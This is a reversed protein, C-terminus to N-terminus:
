RQLVGDCRKSFKRLPAWPSRLAGGERKFHAMQEVAARRVHIPNQERNFVIDDVDQVDAVASTLRELVLWFWPHGM